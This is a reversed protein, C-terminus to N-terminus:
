LSLGHPIKKILKDAIAMINAPIIRDDNEYKSLLTANIGLHYAMQTQNWLLNSRILKLRQGPTYPKNKM